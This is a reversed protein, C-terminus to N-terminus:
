SQASTPVTVELMGLQQRFGTVDWCTRAEVAKGNTVRMLTMCDAEAHKGTALNTATLRWYVAVKDNAEVTDLVTFAADSSAAKYITIAHKVGDRDMRGTPSAPDYEIYDDALVGDLADPTGRNWADLWARAVAENTNM